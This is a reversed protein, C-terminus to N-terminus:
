SQTFEYFKRQPMHIISSYFKYFCSYSHTHHLKVQEFSHVFTLIVMFRNAGDREREVM